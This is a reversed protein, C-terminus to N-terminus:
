HLIVKDKILSGPAHLVVFYIGKPLGSTRISAQNTGPQCHGEQRHLIQGMSNVLEIRMAGAQAAEFALEFSGESPNPYLRTLSASGQAQATRASTTGAQTNISITQSYLDNLGSSREIRLRYYTTGTYPEEDVAKYSAGSGNGKKAEVAVVPTFSTGDASHEVIFRLYNEESSTLWQLEVGASVSSATFKKLTIPEAEEPAGSVYINDLYINNGYANTGVFKVLVQSSRYNNLDILERRWQDATPYFAGDQQPATALAAGAKSYISKYTLGCDVSVLVELKDQADGADAYAVDFALAADEPTNLNLLPLVLGDTSGKADYDYYNLFVTTSLGGDAGTINSYPSWSECRDANEIQWKNSPPFLGGEFAELFDLKEGVSSIIFDDRWQDNAPRADTGGNPASTYVTLTHNGDPASIAPLSVLEMEGSNLSGSWQYTKVEGADVQYNITVSTLASQGLNRLLVEPLANGNCRQGKPSVIDIIAADLAVPQLHVASSLLERRRPSKTLVTRMRLTQDNTFINMCADYTYDMYNEIMDVSGCSEKGTPCRGNSAAAEPTDGCFDDVGCGGDGWIHRLGLWHGVEHTVTRGLDYNNVYTGEPYKERSGFASYLQVVGDTDAGGTNCGVGMAFGHAPDPFQAYGLLLAAFNVTWMNLYRNPDYITAPKILLDIDELVYAPLPGQYRHIGPEPLLNGEPDVLAPVFEIQTDAGRPDENFGRTDLMRRFDENMVEFQSYVQEAAINAGQGVPEGFHV